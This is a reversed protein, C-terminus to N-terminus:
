RLFEIVRCEADHLAETGSIHLRVLRGELRGEPAHEARVYYRSRMRQQTRSRGHSECTIM